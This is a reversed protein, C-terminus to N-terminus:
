SHVRDCLPYNIKPFIYTSLGTPCTTNPESMNLYGVRMWGGKGDCNSGEM